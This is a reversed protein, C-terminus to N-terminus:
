QLQHIKTKVKLNLKHEQLIFDSKLGDCVM